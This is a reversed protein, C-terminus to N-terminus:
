LLWNRRHAFTCYMPSNHYKSNNTSYKRRFSNRAYFMIFNMLEHVTKM